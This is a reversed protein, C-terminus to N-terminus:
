PQIPQIDSAFVVIGPDIPEALDLTVARVIGALRCADASQTTVTVEIRGGNRDFLLVARRDCLGGTWQLRIAAPRGVVTSVGDGTNGESRAIEISRVLGTRDDVTIPLPGAAGIPPFQAALIPPVPEPEADCGGVVGAVALVIVAMRNVGPDYGRSSNPRGLLARGLHRHGEGARDAEQGQAARTKTL